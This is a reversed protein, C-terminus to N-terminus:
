FLRLKKAIRKGNVYIYTHMSFLLDCEGDIKIGNVIASLKYRIEGLGEKESFVMGNVVLETLMFTRKMTIKLGMHEVSILNRGNKDAQRLPVTDGALYQLPTSGIDMRSTAAEIDQPNVERLKAWAVAGKALFVIVTGRIVVDIARFVIGQWWYNDLGNAFFLCVVLISDATFFIFALLMYSRARTSLDWCRYYLFISVFSICVGFLILYAFEQHMEALTHHRRYAVSESESVMRVLVRNECTGNERGRLHCYIM